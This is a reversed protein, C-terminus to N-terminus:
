NNGLKETAKKSLRVSLDSVVAVLAAEGLTILVQVLKAYM